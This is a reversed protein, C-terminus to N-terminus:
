AQRMEKSGKGSEAEAGRGPRGPRSARHARSAPASTGGARRKRRGATQAGHGSGASAPHTDGLRCHITTMAEVQCRATPTQVPVGFAVMQEEPRDAPRFPAFGDFQKRKEKTDSRRGVSRAPGRERRGVSLTVRQAWICHEQAVTGTIVIM